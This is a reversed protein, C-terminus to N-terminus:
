PMSFAHAVVVYSRKVRRRWLVPNTAGHAEVDLPVAHWGQYDDAADRHTFLM